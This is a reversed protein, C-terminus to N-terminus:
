NFIRKFYPYVNYVGPQSRMERIIKELTTTDVSNRLPLIIETEEFNLNSLELVESFESFFESIETLSANEKFEISVHEYCIEISYKQGIGSYTETLEGSSNSGSTQNISVLILFVLGILYIAVEKM